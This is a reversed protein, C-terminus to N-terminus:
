QDNSAEANDILERMRDYLEPAKGTGSAVAEFYMRELEQWNDVLASWVKSVAKMESLRDRYEPVHILLKICRALDSPDHPHNGFCSNGSMTGPPLGEMFEVITNSSTGREGGHIWEIVNNNM